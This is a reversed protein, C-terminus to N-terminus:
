GHLHQALYAELGVRAIAEHQAELWDAHEEEGALLEELLGKTGHDGKGACLAIGGNLRGIADRELDLALDLKEKPSDGVKVAGLRQMNPTGDLYLVREIIRDADKMEAIAHDHFRGALREIGWNDLMKADVFYQNVATLEATLVENLYEIIEADGQM